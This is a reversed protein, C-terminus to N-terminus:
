YEWGFIDFELSAGDRIKRKQEQSLEFSRYIDNGAGFRSKAKPIGAIPLKREEAFERLWPWFDNFKLLKDLSIKGDIMYLPANLYTKRDITRDVERRLDGIGYEGRRGLHYAALSVAKEYPHRDVSFKFARPWLDPLRKRVKWAPMHNYFRTLGLYKHNMPAGGYERRIVEDETSIPTCVDRGGCWSSMVIEASTGSTKRTKIFIFDHSYSAIM